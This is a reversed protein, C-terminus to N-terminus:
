ITTPPPGPTVELPPYLKIPTPVPETPKPTPTAPVSIIAAARPAISSTPIAGNKLDDRPINAIAVIGIIIAIIIVGFLLKAGWIRIRRSM